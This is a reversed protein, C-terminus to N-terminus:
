TLSLEESRSTVAINVIVFSNVPGDGFWKEGPQEDEKDSNTMTLYQILKTAENRAM